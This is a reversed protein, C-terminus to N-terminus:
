GYSIGWRDNPKALLADQLREPDFTGATHLREREGDSWPVAGGFNTAVKVVAMEGNVAVNGSCHVDFRYGLSTTGVRATRLHLVAMEYPFVRRRYDAQYRVRPMTPMKDMGLHELLTREASEVWRIVTSHHYHGTMDTDQLEVRGRQLVAAPALAEM